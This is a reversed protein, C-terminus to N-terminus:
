HHETLPNKCLFEQLVLKIFSHQIDDGVGLPLLGRPSVDGLCSNLYWIGFELTVQADQALLPLRSGGEKLVIGFIIHSWRRLCAQFKAVVGHPKDLHTIIRGLFARGLQSEAQWWCNTSHVALIGDM